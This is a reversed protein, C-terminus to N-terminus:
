STMAMYAFPMLLAVCIAGSLWWWYGNRRFKASQRLAILTGTFGLLGFFAARGLIFQGAGLGTM